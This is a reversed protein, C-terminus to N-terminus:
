NNEQLAESIEYKFVTALMKLEACNDIEAFLTELDRQGPIGLAYRLCM